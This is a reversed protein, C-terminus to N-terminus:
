DDLPALLEQLDKENFKVTQENDNTLISNTLDAKRQQMNIIREEISGAIILKYVSVPKNQGIRWARDSAQEETAPNWWPDYHIVTDAATLNLGVGGAKLSILFIPVTGTQFKEIIEARNKTQGTLKVYHIKNKKLEDEIIGLMSTFQSFILICRGEIVMENIMELLANLKASTINKRTHTTKLLSPHCCVQRLKLLADLIDIHSRQFGQRAIQIQIKTQMAARIAEYLKQQEDGMEIQIVTTTKPPLEAAVETKRRRLMFPTTRAMLNRQALTNAHKEIPHRFRRNFTEQTGLFGPMIFHYLSWLEGLHNEMPTGTLCLRHSTNLKRAIRTAKALPNKINQAEDLIVMAYHHALLIEEDRPLLPYTTLIIDYQSLQEFYQSRNNGQLIVVQLSPTFQAAESKWNHMLSTPAIILAPQNLRGANKELLIHALTQTTKGLGMDDALIGGHESERLFQLWALGKEQYPRLVGNFNTPAKLQQEHGRHFVEILKHLRESGSYALGLTHQLSLLRMADYRDLKLEGENTPSSLLDTLHTLIPKIEGAQLSIKTGDFATTFLFVDDALTQIKKINLLDPQNDILSALLESLDYQRGNAQIHMVLGFWDNTKGIHETLTINPLSARYINLPSNPTHRVDWGIRDFHNSPLLTQWQNLSANILNDTTLALDPSSALLSQVMEQELQRNRHQTVKVGDIAGKFNEGSQNYYISGGEYDFAIKAFGQTTGDFATQSQTATQTILVPKPTGFHDPPKQSHLQTNETQNDILSKIDNAFHESVRPTQLLPLVIEQPYHTELLGILGHQADFYTIPKSPIIYIQTLESNIAEGYADTWIPTLETDKSANPEWQFDLHYSDDHWTIVRNKHSLWYFRNTETLEKLLEISIGNMMQRGFAMPVNNIRQQHQLNSLLPKDTASIKEDSNISHFDAWNKAASNSISGNKLRHIKQVTITLERPAYLAFPQLIYIFPSATHSPNSSFTTPYNNSNTPKLQNLWSNYALPEHPKKHAISQLLKYHSSITVLAAAHKCPFATACSCQTKIIRSKGITVNTSYQHANDAIVALQIEGNELTNVQISKLSIGDTFRQSETIVDQSFFELLKNLEFM